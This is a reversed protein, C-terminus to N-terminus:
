KRKSMILERFNKKLGNNIKNNSNHKASEFAITCLLYPMNTNKHTRTYCLLFHYLSKLFWNAKITHGFSGLSDNM